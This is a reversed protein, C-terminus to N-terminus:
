LTEPPPIPGWSMPIVFSLTNSMTWLYIRKRWQLDMDGARLVLLKGTIQSQWSVERDQGRPVADGGRHLGRPDGSVERLLTSPSPSTPCGQNLSQTQTWDSFLPGFSIFYIGEGFMNLQHSSAFVWEASCICWCNGWYKGTKCLFLVLMESM